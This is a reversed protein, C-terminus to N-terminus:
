MDGTPIRAARDEIRGDGDLCPWSMRKSIKGCSCIYEHHTYRTKIDSYLAKFEFVHQHGAQESQSTLQIRM